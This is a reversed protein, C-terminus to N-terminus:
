DVLESYIHPRRLIHPPNRDRDGRLRSVPLDARIMATQDRSARALFRGRADAIYSSGAWELVRAGGEGRLTERGVRNCAAVWCANQSAVALPEAEWLVRPRDTTTAAPFLILEAGALGLVRAVEPQHLDHGLVVGLKGVTSDILPMHGAGPDIHGRQDTPVHQRRVLSLLTGDADVVAASSHLQGGSSRELFPLVVVCRHLGATRRLRALEPGDIDWALELWRPDPGGLFWPMCSLEPFCVLQVGVRVAQEIADLTGTLALKVAQAPELGPDPHATQVLGIRLISLM